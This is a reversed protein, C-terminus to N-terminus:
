DAHPFNLRRILAQFRPESRLPDFQPDVNLMPVFWLRDEYARELEHLAKKPEGAAMHLTAFLFPPVYQRKERERLADLRAAVETNQGLRAYANGLLAEFDPMDRAVRKGKTFADVADPYRGKQFHALGLVVYALPFSPDMEVAQEAQAIAEDYRRSLYLVVAAGANLPLSLPDLRRARTTAAIAEDFRRMYTQLMAYFHQAEAHSPNLQLARQYAREAEPWNWEYDQYYAGLATYADALGPDLEIAKRAAAASRPMADRPRVGAFISLHAYAQSLAAHAPAYRPDLQVALELLEIGKTVSDPTMRLTFYRGRLFSEYADPNPERGAPSPALRLGIAGAIDQALEHQLALISNLSRDYSQAWVQTQDTVRILQASVRVRDGERGVSGELVYDVGLDSGLERVTKHTRKYQMATTRAIVGLRAPELSGLETIMQETLGDSFYEQEPRASLNAFPLVALMAKGAPGPVPAGLRTWAALGLLTAAAVGLAVAASIRWRRSAGDPPIEPQCEVQPQRIQWWTDVESKFAYVTGLKKHLHRHVPLGEEREWRHVTRVSRRLYAAIEKWSELREDV